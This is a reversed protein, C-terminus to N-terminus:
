QRGGKTSLTYEMCDMVLRRKPEDGLAYDYTKKFTTTSEERPGVRGNRESVKRSSAEVLQLKQKANDARTFTMTKEDFGSNADDANFSIGDDGSPAEQSHTVATLKPSTAKAPVVVLGQRNFIVQDSGVKGVCGWAWVAASAPSAATALAIVAAFALVRASM